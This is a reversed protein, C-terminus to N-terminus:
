KLLEEIAEFLKGAEEMINETAKAKKALEVFYEYEGQIADLNLKAPKSGAYRMFNKSYIKEIVEKPLSIGQIRDVGFAPFEKDTELFLRISKIKDSCNVALDNNDTGFIIRDQYKIFFDRWKEPDETFEIYMIGGPTLDFSVNPWTDLIEEARKINESHFYFHALIMNLKPFKKLINEIESHYFDKEFYNGDGYFWGRDIAAQSIKSGDWFYRPDAVHFLVCTGTEQLYSYYGDYVESDLPAKVGRRIMPKGEIMKIGDFGISHLKRAQEEYDMHMGEAGPLPHYLGGFSFIREPISSKAQLCMLNQLIATRSREIDPLGACDPNYGTATKGTSGLVNISSLRCDQMMNKYKEVCSFAERAHVHCDIINVSAFDSMTINKLYKDNFKAM